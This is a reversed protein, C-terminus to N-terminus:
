GKNEPHLSALQLSRGMRLEGDEGCDIYNPQDSFDELNSFREDPARLVKMFKESQHEVCWLRRVLASIEVAAPFASGSRGIFILEFVRGKVDLWGPAQPKEILDFTNTLFAVFEPYHGVDPDTLVPVRRAGSSRQTVRTVTM